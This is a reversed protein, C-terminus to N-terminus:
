SPPRRSRCESLLRHQVFFSIALYCSFRVGDLRLNGLHRSFTAFFSCCMSITHLLSKHARKQPTKSSVCSRTYSAKRREWNEVSSREANKRRSPIMQKKAGVAGGSRWPPAPRRYFRDFLFIAKCMIGLATACRSTCSLSAAPQSFLFLLRSFKLLHTYRTFEALFM